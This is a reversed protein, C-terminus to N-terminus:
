RIPVGPQRSIDGSRRYEGPGVGTWKKFARHFASPEAFGIEAAIGPISLTSSSLRDIAIDRRLQDKILRYSQGEAELRRRLTPESVHIDRALAEFGPWDDPHLRRLRARIRASLSHSDKYQVLLNEPAARLFAALADEDRVVPLELYSRDFSIATEPESFHLHPSYLVRYEAGHPPEPYSFAASRIPIRRNVLWCALRHIFVLLTEHAFLRVPRAPQRRHLSVLASGARESLESRLDDLLLNFFQTIIELAGKLTRGHIATRSLMAFSGVKMRRSDQGFFEDDLSRAALRMLAAYRPPSVRVQPVSLLGPPIGAENLIAGPDLGSEQLAQLVPAVFCISISSKESSHATRL